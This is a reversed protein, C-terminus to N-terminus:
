CLFSLLWHWRFFARHTIIIMVIIIITITITITIRKWIETWMKMRKKIKTRMRIRMDNNKNEKNNKDKWGSHSLEYRVPVRIITKAAYKFQYSKLSLTYKTKLIFYMYLVPKQFTNMWNSRFSRTLVLLVIVYNCLCVTSELVEEDWWLLGTEHWFIDSNCM